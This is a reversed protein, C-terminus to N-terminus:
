PEKTSFLVAKGGPLFEPYFARVGELKFVQPKGGSAPVQSLNFGESDGFVIADDPGWSAGHPIRAECLTVPEGGQLSVRKLKNESFFGLWRGDPSFFPNYAGETGPIPKADFRDLARLYLQSKGNREAAYALLSGDPSLAISTRGIGLPGFKALALPETDPLKITVRKVPQRTSLPSASLGALVWFAIAAAIAALAFGASVWMVRNRTKHQAMASALLGTQSGGEAIWKLQLMVDHATQWREDPDKALCRSVVHDLAPPTLPQLSSMRPPERDLIAAIVSAASKGEFARKGTAM